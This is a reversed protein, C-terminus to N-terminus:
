ILNASRLIKGVECWEDLSYKNLERILTIRKEEPDEINAVKNSLDIFYEIVEETNM